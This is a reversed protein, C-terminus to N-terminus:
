LSKEKCDGCLGTEVSHRVIDMIGNDKGNTLTKVVYKYVRARAWARMYSQRGYVYTGWKVNMAYMYSNFVVYFLRAVRLKEKAYLIRFKWFFLPVGVFYGWRLLVAFEYMTRNNKNFEYM